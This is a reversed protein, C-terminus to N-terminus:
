PLFTYTTSTVSARSGEYEIEGAVYCPNRAEAAKRVAKKVTSGFPKVLHRFLCVCM